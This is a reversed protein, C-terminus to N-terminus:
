RAATEKNDEKDDPQQKAKDNVIGHLPNRRLPLIGDERQQAAGYQFLFIIVVLRLLLQLVQKVPQFWAGTYLDGEMYPETFLRPGIRHRQGASTNNDVATQQFLNLGFVTEGKDKGMFQAM